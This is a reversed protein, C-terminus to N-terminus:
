ISALSKKTKMSKQERAPNINVTNVTSAINYTILIKKRM